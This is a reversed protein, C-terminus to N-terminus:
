EASLGRSERRGLVGPLTLEEKFLRFNANGDAEGSLAMAAPGSVRLAGAKPPAKM